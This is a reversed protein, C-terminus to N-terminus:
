IRLLSFYNQCSCPSYLLWLDFRQSIIIKESGIWFCFLVGGSSAYCESTYCQRQWRFERQLFRCVEAKEGARPWVSCGNQQFHWTNQLVESFSSILCFYILVMLMKTDYIYFISYNYLALIYRNWFLICSCIYLICDSLKHSLQTRSYRTCTINM